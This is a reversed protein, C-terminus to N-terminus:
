KNTKTLDSQHYVGNEDIRLIWKSGDCKLWDPAPEVIGNAILDDRKGDDGLDEDFATIKMGEHLKVKIKDETLSFDEHSLCLVEGFLGNFDARIKVIEM